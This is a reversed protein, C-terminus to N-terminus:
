RRQTPKAPKTPKTPKAPRHARPAPARFVRHGYVLAYRECLPVRALEPREYQITGPQAGTDPYGELHGFEHVMEKCFYTFERDDALWSPWVSINIHVVCDSFTSAPATFENVGAPSAWTSWMAARDGAPSPANVGAAPAESAPSSVVQVIGACPTGHWYAVARAVAESVPDSDVITRRTAAHAGPALALALLPVVAIRLVARLM